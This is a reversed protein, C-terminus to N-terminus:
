DKWEDLLSILYKINKVDGSYHISNNLENELTEYYQKLISKDQKEIAYEICEALESIYMSLEWDRLQRSNPERDNLFKCIEHAIYFRREKNM